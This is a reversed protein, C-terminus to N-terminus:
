LQRRRGARRATENVPREGPAHAFGLPTEADRARYYAAFEGDEYGDAYAEVLTWDDIRANKERGALGDAHGREYYLQRDSM